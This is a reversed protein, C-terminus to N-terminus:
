VARRRSRRREAAEDLVERIRRLVLDPTFPKQLFTTGPALSGSHVLANDTYGSMYVVLMDPFRKLLKAALVQGRMEPMVVDTLLLDIRKQGAILQLAAPGNEAALVKYGQDRLVHALLDRLRGEDEVLLLTEHGCLVPEPRAPARRSAADATAPLYIKFTTGQGPESYVWIHGNSQNVIGYVTALGLGTGKGAEKTTFFPEFIRARTEANMGHGTDSVALMVYNGPQVGHQQAEEGAFNLNNTELTLKGGGPMADRANVVLNMIVQEIQGPDAKVRNLDAGPIIRLDIDEGLLRPLIKGIGAMVENMDLVEPRMVQKRSFALLQRTLASAKNSASMIEDAANRLPEDEPTSSRILYAYGVIISLLNNFDHAVGGALRGVAEMKQSHLLQAELRKRETIDRAIVAAGAVQGAQDRIPSVTLAVEIRRGDKCRRETEQTWSVGERVRSLNAAVDDPADPLLLIRASQGIAEPAAYGFIKEAGPNWSQIVSDLDESIIADQSSEVIAAMQRLRQETARRETVDRLRITMIREGGTEFKSISAEAPFESGDARRGFITGRENMARLADASKSFATIHGAHALRYREPLLLNIPKGLIEEARYGFIKEAGANFLTIRQEDDITLIADESIQVVGGFRLYATHLKRATRQLAAALGYVLACIGLFGLYRLLEADSLAANAKPRLVFWWGLASSFLLSILGPLWGGFWTIVVVAGVLFYYPRDGAAPFIVTLALAVIVVVGALGYRIIPEREHIPRFPRFIRKWKRSTPGQSGVSVDAPQPNRSVSM